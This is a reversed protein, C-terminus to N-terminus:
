HNSKGILFESWQKMVDRRQEIQDTRRYAREVESSIWHSLALEALRHDIGEEAAWDRFTSRLGHPVAPRNSRQDLFGPSGAKEETSQTRRMVSSLTMDSLAGGRAAFFVNSQAMSEQDATGLRPLRELIEFAADSLPERHLKGNKMRQAPITWLRKKLDVEEWVM